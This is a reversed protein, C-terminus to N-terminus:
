WKKILGNHNTFYSFTVSICTIAAIIVILEAGEVYLSKTGALLVVLVLGLGSILIKKM